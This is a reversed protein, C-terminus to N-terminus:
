GPKYDPVKDEPRFLSITQGAIRSFDAAATEMDKRDFGVSAFQIVGDPKILFLTPVNTLGYANSVAYGSEDLLLPFTCSYDQAFERTDRANDQSIGWIHVRDEQRVAQHLREIFPFMFQCVPCSSKLFALLVPGQRLAEALEYSKGNTDKLTFPPAPTGTSLAEMGDGGKFLKAIATLM